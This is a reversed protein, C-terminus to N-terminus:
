NSGAVHAIELKAREVVIRAGDGARPYGISPGVEDCHQVLDQLDDITFKGPGGDGDALRKRAVADLLTAVNEILGRFHERHADLQDETVDTPNTADLEDGLEALEQLWGYLELNPEEESIPETEQSM